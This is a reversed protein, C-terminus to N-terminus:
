QFWQSKLRFMQAQMCRFNETKHKNGPITVVVEELIISLVQMALWPHEIQHPVVLVLLLLCERRIARAIQTGIEM